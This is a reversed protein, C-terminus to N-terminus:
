RPKRLNRLLQRRFGAASGQRGEVAQRRGNVGAAQRGNGPMPQGNHGAAQRTGATEGATGATKIAQGAAIAQPKCTLSLGHGMCAFFLGLAHCHRVM